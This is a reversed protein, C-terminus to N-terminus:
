TSATAPKFAMHGGLHGGVTLLAAGAVSSVIATTRHPGRRAFWSLVYAMLGGINLAAHTVAIRRDEHSLQGADALGAIATPLASINGWGILRRATDAAGRGGVLDVMFASTWFGIPLDTLAPHLPHGLWKGQALSVAGPSRLLGRSRAMMWSAAGDLREQDAIARPWRFLVSSEDDM